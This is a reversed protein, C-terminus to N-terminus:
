AEKLQYKDFLQGIGVMLCDACEFVDVSLMSRPIRMIEMEGIRAVFCWEGGPAIEEYGYYLSLNKSTIAAYDSASSITAM